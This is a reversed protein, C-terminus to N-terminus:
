EYPRLNYNKHLDVDLIFDQLIVLMRYFINTLFYRRLENSRPM